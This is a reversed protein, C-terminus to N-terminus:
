VNCTGVGDIIKVFVISVGACGEGLATLKGRKKKKKNKKRKEKGGGKV